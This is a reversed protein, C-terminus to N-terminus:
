DDHSVDVSALQVEEWTVKKISWHTQYKKM